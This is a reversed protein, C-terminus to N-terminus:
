DIVELKKVWRLFDWEYIGEDCYTQGNMYKDFSKLAKPTLIEKLREQKITYQNEFYLKQPLPYYKRLIPEDYDVYHFLAAETKHIIDQYKKELPHYIKDITCICKDLDDFNNLDNMSVELLVHYRNRSIQYGSKYLM